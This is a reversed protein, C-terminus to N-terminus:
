RRYQAQPRVRPYLRPATELNHNLVQPEAALVTALAQPDGALDSILAEVALSPKRKKLARITAAVHAAGGDPLDDRTVMTLVCYELGLAAAAQATRQPESDDPPAPPAHEVACFACDRTCSPGLLLFVAEGREFCEGRNPCRAQECVTHLGLEELVGKVAPTQGLGALPRKLWPPKPSMRTMSQWSNPKEM